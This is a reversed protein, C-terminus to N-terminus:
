RDGSECGLVAGGRLHPKMAQSVHWLSQTGGEGPRRQARITETTLGKETVFLRSDVIASPSTSFKKVRISVVVMVVM